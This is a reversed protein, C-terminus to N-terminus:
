GAPQPAPEPAHTALLPGLVALAGLAVDQYLYFGAELPPLDEDAAAADPPPGDAPADAAPAPRLLSTLDQGAGEIAARATATLLRLPLDLAAATRQTPLVALPTPTPATVAAIWQLPLHFTAAIREPPLLPPPPGDAMLDEWEMLDFLFQGGKYLPWPQLAALLAQAREPEQQRLAVGHRALTCLCDRLCTNTQQLFALARHDTPTLPDTSGDGTDPGPSSTPTFTM